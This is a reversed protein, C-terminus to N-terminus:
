MPHMIKPTFKSIFTNITTRLCFFLFAYINIALVSKQIILLRTKNRQRGRRRGRGGADKPLTNSQSINDASYDAEQQENEVQTAWDLPKQGTSITSSSADPTESGEDTFIFILIDANRM